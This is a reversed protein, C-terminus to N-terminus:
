RVPRDVALRSPTAEFRDLHEAVEHIDDTVLVLENFRMLVEPAATAFLSEMLQRVPLATTWYDADLFVMPSFLAGAADAPGTAYFNQEADQFVEHLTGASGQTFVIGQRAVTLLGDERISNQFLKAIHTAFPSTPEHGYHWTPISLSAVPSVISRALEWAPAFWDQAVQVLSRDPTGDAAVIESLRPMNPMEALVAITGDLQSDPHQSLAAGLHGAEMAGPGGGTCVLMGRRALNRGLEAISRYASSSRPLQHGGMIGVVRRDMITAGMDLTVSSDHLARMMAAYPEIPNSRGTRVFWEYSRFDMTRSYSGPTAPDFGDFLEDATYVTNRIPQFPLGDPPGATM